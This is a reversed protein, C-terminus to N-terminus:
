ATTEAESADSHRWFHRVVGVARLCCAPLWGAERYWTGVIDDVVGSSYFFSATSGAKYFSARAAAAAALHVAELRNCCCSRWAAYDVYM